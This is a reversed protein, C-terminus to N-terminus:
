KIHEIAQENLFALYKKKAIEYAEIGEEVEGNATGRKVAMAVAFSLKNSAMIMELSLLSEKRRAEEKKEHEKEKKSQKRNYFALIVGTILGPLIAKMWEMWM